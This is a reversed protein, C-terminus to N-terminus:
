IFVTYGLYSSESETDLISEQMESFQMPNFDIDVDIPLLYSLAMEMINRNSEGPMFTILTGPSAPGINIRYLDNDPMFDSGIITNIGLQGEGLKVQLDNSLPTPKIDTSINFVEINVEFLLSLIKSVFEIDNRKHQIEPLLHMWILGQKYNLLNFEEWGFEFIKNLHANDVKKDLKSEYLENIVKIHNIEADFPSFFLRALREEERRIKIDEIMAEEDLGISSRPAQHFLGEPLMDYISERNIEIRLREQRRNNAYYFDTTNIEKSFARKGPGLPIIEIKDKDILEDEILSAAFVSAKYDTFIENNILRKNKM